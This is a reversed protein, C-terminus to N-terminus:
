KLYTPILLSVFVFVFRMKFHWKPSDLPLIFVCPNPSFLFLQCTVFPESDVSCLPREKWAMANCLVLLMVACTIYPQGVKFHMFWGKNLILKQDKSRKHIRLMLIDFPKSLKILIIDNRRMTLDASHRKITGIFIVAIKVRMLERINRIFSLTLLSFLSTYM